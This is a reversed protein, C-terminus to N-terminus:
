DCDEDHTDINNGEECEDVDGDPDVVASLSIVLDECTRGTGSFSFWFTAEEGSSLGPVDATLGGPLFYLGDTIGPSSAAGINKVTVKARGHYEAMQGVAIEDCSCTVLSIAVTLDPCKGGDDPPCVVSSCDTAPGQFVGGVAEACEAATLNLCTGDRPFCCAGRDDDPVDRCCEEFIVTNNDEDCETIAHSSDAVVRVEIPCPPDPVEAAPIIFVLPPLAIANAAGPNFPLMSGVINFGTVGSTGPAFAVVTFGTTIPQTGINEIVSPWVTIQVSGDDLMVCSHDKVLLEIDPCDEPDFRSPGTTRVGGIPDELTLGWVCGRVSGSVWADVTPGPVLVMFVATQGPMFGCSGWPARWSWTFPTEMFTWLMPGSEAIASFGNNNVSFQCVGCGNWLFDINTVEWVYIDYDGERVVCEEVRISGYRTHNITEHYAIADSPCTYHMSNFDPTEIPSLALMFEVPTWGMRYDFLLREDTTAVTELVRGQVGPEFRDEEAWALDVPTYGEPTEEYLYSRGALYTNRDETEMLGVIVGEATELEHEYGELTPEGMLRLEIGPIADPAFQATGEAAFEAPFGADYIKLVFEGPYLDAVYRALGIVLRADNTGIPSEAEMLGTGFIDALEITDLEDIEGDGNFDMLFEWISNEHFWALITAAEIPGTWRPSWTPKSEQSILHLDSRIYGQIEEVETQAAISWGITALLIALGLLALTNRKM